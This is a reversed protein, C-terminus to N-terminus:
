GRRKLLNKNEQMVTLVQKPTVWVREVTLAVWYTISVKIHLCIVLAKGLWM